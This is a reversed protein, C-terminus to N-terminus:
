PFSRFLDSLDTANAADGLLPTVGFIEEISRLTSSHTYAVQGAYGPKILPSLAIFGIPVNGSESEDWTIFLAGGEQYAKSAIIKPVEQSLWADGSGVGCDHMDDCLNPTIFSYAPENGTELDSALESYPRVHAICDPSAADLGGNVDSFYVFPDHKPAYQNVSQMPCDSGPIGEEYAKWSVGANQLLTALHLKSTLVHQDPTGDDAIGFNTGAELWLYNPMSPHLGPVNMYREAHAGQVLLTNNIYPAQPNGKISSWDHNEMVIVFVHNVHNSVTVQVERSDTAKQRADIARVLIAHKGNAVAFTDWVTTFPSTTSSALATGDLLYDVQITGEPVFAGLTVHGAVTAGATPGALSPAAPPAATTGGDTGSVAASTPNKSGCGAASLLALVRLASLTRM